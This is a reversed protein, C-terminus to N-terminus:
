LKVSLPIIFFFFLGSDLVGRACGCGPGEPLCLQPGARLGATGSKQSKAVAKWGRVSHSPVNPVKQALVEFAAAARAGPLLQLQLLLLLLQFVRPLAGAAESLLEREESAGRSGSELGRQAEPWAPHIWGCVRLLWM